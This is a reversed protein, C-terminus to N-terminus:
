SGIARILATVDGGSNKLIQRAQNRANAVLSHGDVVVDIARVGNGAPIVKWIAVRGKGDARQVAVQQEGDKGDRVGVIDVKQGAVEKGRSACDRAAKKVLAERYADKQAKTMRKFSDYSASVAMTDFDFVESVLEACAARVAAKDGPKASGTTENIRDVFAVIAADAEAAHVGSGFALAVAVAAAM